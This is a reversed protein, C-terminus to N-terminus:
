EGEPDLWMSVDIDLLKGLLATDDGIEAHVKSRFMPTTLEDTPTPATNLRNLRSALGRRLKSSRDDVADAVHQLATSRHKRAQNLRAYESLPRETVGLFRLIALHASRPDEEIEDLRVVHIQSRDFLDLYRVVQEGFRATALYDVHTRFDGTRPRPEGFVAAELDAQSEYGLFTHHHHLSVIYQAPDRLQVILKADPTLASISAAAATSYLYWPSAEVRHRSNSHGDFVAAYRDLDRVAREDVLDTAHFMPEKPRSITIDDHKDLYRAVSTTASRPAGLIYATPHALSSAKSQPVTVGLSSARQTAQDM